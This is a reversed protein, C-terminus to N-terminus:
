HSNLPGSIELLFKVLNLINKIKKYIFLNTGYKASIKLINKSDNRQDSLTFILTYNGGFGVKKVFIKLFTTKEILVSQYFNM